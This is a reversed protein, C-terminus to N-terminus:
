RGLGALGDGLVKVGLLLMIVVTIATSNDVMFRRVAELMARGRSGGLLSVVNAGFVTLSAILVFVVVAVVLDGGVVGIEAMSTAAAAALVLNKPNAASLGLGLLVARGPGASELSAMWGPVHRDDDTRPRQTWTRIGAVALAAGGVVRGWDAITSSTATPDDAGGFLAVVLATVVSLGVLWGAAFLPGNTRGRPGALILVVGIVPFPSLAIAMAAPLGVGIAQLVM